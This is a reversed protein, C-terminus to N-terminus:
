SPTESESAAPRLEASRRRVTASAVRLKFLMADSKLRGRLRAEQSPTLEAPARSLEVLVRGLDHLVDAIVAEGAGTAARRYLRNSAVLDGAGVQARMLDAPGSGNGVEILLRSARGLHADLDTLLLVEPIPTIARAAVSVPDPSESRWRDLGVAMLLGAALAAAGASLAWRPVRLRGLLFRDRRGAITPELRQWLEDEFSARPQPASSQAMAMVRQLRVYRERCESCGELHTAARYTDAGSEEYYHLVLEDDCLHGAAETNRTTLLENM